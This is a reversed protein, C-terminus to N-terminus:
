VHFYGAISTEIYGIANISDVTLTGSITSTSSPSTSTSTSSSTTTSPESFTITTTSGATLTGTSTTPYYPYSPSITYSYTGPPTTFLIPNGSAVSQTKGDYTVQWTYPALPLGTEQFTTTVETPSNQTYFLMQCQFNSNSPCTFSQGQPFYCQSGSGGYGGASCTFQTGDLPYTVSIKNYSYLSLVCGPDGTTIYANTPCTYSEGPNVYITQMSVSLPVLGVVNMAGVVLFLGAIVSLTIYLHRHKINSKILKKAALFLTTALSILALIWLIQFDMKTLVISPFPIHFDSFITFIVFFAGAIPLIYEGLKQNLLRYYYDLTGLTGPRRYSVNGNTPLIM